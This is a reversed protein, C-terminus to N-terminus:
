LEAAFFAVFLAPRSPEASWIQELNFVPGGPMRTTEVSTELATAVCPETPVNANPGIQDPATWRTPPLIRLLFGTM